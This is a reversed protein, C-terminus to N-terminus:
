NMSFRRDTIIQYKLDLHEVNKFILINSIYWSSFLLIQRYKMNKKVYDQEKKYDIKKKYFKMQFLTIGISSMTNNFEDQTSLLWNMLFKNRYPRSNFLRNILSIILVSFLFVLIEFFTIINDHGQPVRGSFIFQLYISKNTM